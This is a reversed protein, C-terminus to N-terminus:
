GRSRYQFAEYVHEPKIEESQELDAITRALKIMRHYARPSLKLAQSSESLVKKVESSLHLKEIDRAHMHSNLRSSGLRKQQANRAIQVRTRITATTDRYSTTDGLKEYDIHEVTIWLDIRDLIPGSIKRRYRALDNPTCICPKHMSGFNGCPCPNMAAVLTFGAPFSATGRARSIHVVRDEIPQRLSEIVRKDFEPFEDM